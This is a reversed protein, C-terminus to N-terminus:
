ARNGSLPSTDLVAALGRAIFPPNRWGPKGYGLPQGDTTAVSGGAAALVAHGAALDWEMTHGFRPYLDASGEALRCFKLSSGAAVLEAVKLGAIFEETAADRHSRSAVVSLGQEPPLRCAIRRTGAGDKRWAIGDGASWYAIGLAPLTVIGASPAGDEILGINVTFEGNRSIFERTGDLPDVLFFRRGFAPVRGAAVSEEAIVPIDPLLRALGDLIIAEAATDAATVPSKDTKEAVAIEGQYIEMIAAGAQEALLVLQEAIAPSLGSM